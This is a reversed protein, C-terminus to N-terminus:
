AAALTAISVKINKVMLLTNVCSELTAGTTVVDDVLLIHKNELLEENKVGFIEKVNNWRDFKTKRTQTENNIKRFLSSVNVNVNLSFAIGEAIIESQNFGRKKQKGPHLPVPIVMDINRYDKSEKLDNGFIRGLYYGVEKKGRYKLQHILKQYHSGKSFIFFATAQFVQVKGWFLRSVSNDALMHFNTRPLRYLCLTCLVEEHKHLVECCACCIRPFFLGALDDIIGTINKKLKMYQAKVNNIYGPSSYSRFIKSKKFYETTM